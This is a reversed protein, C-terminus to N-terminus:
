AARYMTGRAVGTKKVKKAKLLAQMPLALAKTSVRLNKAIQEMRQGSKRKVERLLADAERQVQARTRRGAKDRKTGRRAEARGATSRAHRAGLAEAVADAVADKLISTVDTAFAEIREQLRRQIQENM